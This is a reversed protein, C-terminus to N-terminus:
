AGCPETATTEPGCFAVGPFDSWYLLHNALDLTMTMPGVPASHPDASALVQGTATAASLATVTFTAHGGDDIVNGSFTDCPPPDQGCTAYTRWSASGTGSAEITLGVGHHYWMGTFPGAGTLGSPQPPPSASTGPHLASIFTGPHTAGGQCNDVSARQPWPGDLYTTEDPPTVHIEYPVWAAGADCVGPGPLATLAAVANLGPGVLVPSPTEVQRVPDYVASGNSAPGILELGPFGSLTCPAASINTLVVRAQYQQTPTASPGTVNLALQSTHCRATAPASPPSSLM